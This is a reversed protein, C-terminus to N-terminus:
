RRTPEIQVHAVFSSCAYTELVTALDSAASKAASVHSFFVRLGDPSWIGEVDPEASRDSSPPSLRIRGDPAMFGGQTLARRLNRGPSGPRDAEEPYRDLVDAALDLYHQAQEPSAWDIRAHFREVATRRQGGADAVSADQVTFEHADFLDAIESVTFPGSGGVANRIAVRVARPILNDSGLAAV